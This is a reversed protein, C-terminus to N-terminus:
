NNRGKRGFYIKNLGIYGRNMEKSSRKLRNRKNKEIAEDRFQCINIWEKITYDYAEDLYLKETKCDEYISSAYAVITFSDTCSTSTIDCGSSTVRTENIETNAM